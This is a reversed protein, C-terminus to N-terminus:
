ITVGFTTEIKKALSEADRGFAASTKDDQSELADLAKFLAERQVLTIWPADDFEGGLQERTERLVLEVGQDGAQDPVTASEDHIAIVRLGAATARADDRVSSLRDEVTPATVRGLLAGVVLGAVLAGGTFLGLRRRRRGAPIDLAM